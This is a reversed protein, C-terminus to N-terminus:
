LKIFKKVENFTYKTSQLCLATRTIPENTNNVPFVGHPITVDLLWVENPKAIFSDTKTLGEPRFLKGNTQNEIQSTPHDQNVSYFQTRCLSTELYINISSLIESDTHPPIIGNIEMLFIEFDNRISEPLISRVNNKDIQNLKFYKIGKWTGNIELGYKIKLDGKEFGAINFNDKIKLYTM